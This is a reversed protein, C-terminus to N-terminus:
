ALGFVQLVGVLMAAISVITLTGWLTVEGTTWGTKNTNKVTYIFVNALVIVGIALMIIGSVLSTM